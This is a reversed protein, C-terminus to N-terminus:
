FHSSLQSTDHTLQYILIKRRQFRFAQQAFFLSGGFACMRRENRNISSTMWLCRGHQWYKICVFHKKREMEIFYDLWTFLNPSNLKQMQEKSKGIRYKRIPSKEFPQKTFIDVQDSTNSSRLADQLSCRLSPNMDATSCKFQFDILRVSEVHFWFQRCCNDKRKKNLINSALRKGIFFMRM